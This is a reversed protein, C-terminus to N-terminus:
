RNAEASAATWSPGSNLPPIGIRSRFGTRVRPSGWLNARM